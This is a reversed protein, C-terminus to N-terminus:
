SITQYQKSSSTYLYVLVLNNNSLSSCTNGIGLGVCERTSPKFVKFLIFCSSRKLGFLGTTSFAVGCLVRLYRIMSRDHSGRGMTQLAVFIHPRCPQLRTPVSCPSFKVCSSRVSTSLIRNPLIIEIRVVDLHFRVIVFHVNM